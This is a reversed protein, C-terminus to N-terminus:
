QRRSYPSVIKNLSDVAGNLKKISDNLGDIDIDGIKKIADSMAETNDTLVTDVNSIMKNMGDLSNKVDGMLTTAQELTTEAAMLTTMVKPVILVASALVVAAIVIMSFAVVGTRKATKKQLKVMEALLETETPGDAKGAKGKKDSADKVPGPAAEVPAAAPAPETKATAPELANNETVETIKKDDEMNVEWFLFLAAEYSVARTYFLILPPVIENRHIGNCHRVQQM